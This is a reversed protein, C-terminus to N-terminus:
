NQASPPKMFRVAIPYLLKGLMKKLGSIKGTNAATAFHQLDLSGDLKGILMQVPADLELGIGDAIRNMRQFNGIVGAADVVAAYGMASKVAERAETIDSESGQIAADAYATLLDAHKIGSEDAANADAVVGIDVGDSQVQGSM